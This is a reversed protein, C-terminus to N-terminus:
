KRTIMWTTKEADGRGARMVIRGDLGEFVYPEVQHLELADVLPKISNQVSIVTLGVEVLRHNEFIFRADVLQNNLPRLHVVDCRIEEKKVFSHGNRQWRQEPTHKFDINTFAQSVEDVSMGLSVALSPLEIKEAAALSSTDRVDRVERRTACGINFLTVFLIVALLFSLKYHKM